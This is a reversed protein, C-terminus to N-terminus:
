RITHFVLNHKAQMVGIGMMVSSESFVLQKERTM